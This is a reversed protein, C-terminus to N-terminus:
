PDKGDTLSGARGGAAKRARGLQVAGTFARIGLGLLVLDLIMQIMVVVRADQSTATIDGYGVTALTTM